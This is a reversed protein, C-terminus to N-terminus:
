YVYVFENSNLIVLCVEALARTELDVDAPQLDPVFDRYPGLKEVFSFPQGTNEDVAERVVQTPYKTRRPPIKKLAKEMKKWHAMCADLEKATPARGYALQFLDGISKTRSQGALRKALALSRSASSESNFWSFVQPTVTSADRQECSFDPGPENFVEMFPDRLGRIKQVYISRRHRQEPKINPVWAPAFTGMVMRPQLAAELNIEPRVPIGGLKRNLEGSVALAADRMEEASLRRPLFRAYSIGLPDLRTLSEPEPHHSNRGYADSLMIMRHLSKISWDGEVFTAALWDLLEPHTPKKGTGGFNNPNGAIPRDFHWLWIRNVISRTTLPNRSDAIWNALALRRGEPGEPFELKLEPNFAEVASLAGPVVPETPSFPDGGSLIATKEIKGDKMPNGPMRQPKYVATKKQTAGTYVAFAIPKYRDFEWGLREFGKRAVTGMGHEKPGFGVHRPPIKDDPIKAKKMAGRAAGFKGKSKALADEYSKSDLQQDKMWALGAKAQLENLGKLTEGYEFRREKLWKQEDFGECNEEKLFEAKREALQTTAFVAQMKYYDRTPVPDFKHDHCKACQLSHSLFAEGVANTVDDLFRQRAVKAVEMGTLEWPGMRLFGTAIIKEPDSEEIEDGAIQEKIFQDYPMDENFARVVYDRYRWTNGREYDNAFGSSDAYRAVDLWHRAMREGYHPSALLRDVLSDKALMRDKAYAAEFDVVEEPTPPLGTLDFTARRIFTRADAAPAAELEKPMAKGILHDIAASGGPAEPKVVKQYAWLDEPKYRRNAWEEDLAKSTKVQIGDGALLRDSEKLIAEKAEGKPWPAGGRIWERIWEREKEKLADADKPPMPEFFDHERTVSQYLPSEEPHGKVIAADGSEGGAFLSKVTRMDYDGKIKDPKNGHCGHCRDKLLPQVRLVALQDASLSDARSWSTFFLLGFVCWYGAVKLRLM